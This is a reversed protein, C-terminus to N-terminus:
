QKLSALGNNIAAVPHALVGLSRARNIPNDLFGFARAYGTLASLGNPM